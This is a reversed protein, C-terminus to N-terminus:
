GKSRALMARVKPHSQIKAISPPAHPFEPFWQFLAYGARAGAFWLPSRRDRRRPQEAQDSAFWKSNVASFAVYRAHRSCSPSVVDDDGSSMDDTDKTVRM